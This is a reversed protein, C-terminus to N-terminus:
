QKVEEFQLARSYDPWALDVDSIVETELPWRIDFAPDDHRIGRAHAASHFESMLYLVESNDALTQFGHACGEPVYLKRQNDATLEAALWQLYTPSDHRLDIIVDYIAGRTCGVVKAERCPHDQYHMGRLTAKCTNTSVNVQALRAALGRQEFEKQCWARAFFGRADSRRELDIVFAGPIATERFIM